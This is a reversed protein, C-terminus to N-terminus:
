YKIDISLSFKTELLDNSIEHNIAKLLERLRRSLRFLLPNKSSSEFLSNFLFDDFDILRQM